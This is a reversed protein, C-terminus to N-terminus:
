GYFGGALSSLVGKGMRPSTSEASSEEGPSAAVVVSSLLNIVIHNALRKM